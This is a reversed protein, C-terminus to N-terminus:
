YIQTSRYYYIMFLINHIIGEGITVDVMFEFSVPCSNSSHIVACVWAWHGEQFTYDRNEELQVLVGLVSSSCQKHILMLGYMSESSDDHINVMASNPDTIVRDSNGELLILYFSETEEIQFDSVTTIHSVCQRRQCPSFEIPIVQEAIFDERYAAPLLHNDVCLCNKLFCSM